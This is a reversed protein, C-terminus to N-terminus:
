WAGSPGITRTAAGIISCVGPFVVAFSLLKWDYMGLNVKKQWIVMAAANMATFIVFFSQGIYFWMLFFAMAICSDDDPHDKLVLMATHDIAHSSSFLFDGIAIYAVLRESLPRKWFNKKQLTMYGLVSLSAIISITIAVDATVHILYFDIGPYGFVPLGEHADAIPHITPIASHEFFLENSQSAVWSNTTVDM